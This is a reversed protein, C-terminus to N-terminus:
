GRSRPGRDFPREGGVRFAGEGYDLIDAGAAAGRFVLRGEECEGERGACLIRLGSALCEREHGPDAPGSGM